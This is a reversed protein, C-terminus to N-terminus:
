MGEADMYHLDQYDKRLGLMTSTEIIIRQDTVIIQSPAVEKRGPM